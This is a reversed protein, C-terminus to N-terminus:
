GTKELNSNLISVIGYTGDVRVMQGPKIRKTAMPICAVAPIGYERAVIAGHSLVGGREMILASARLFLPTWGPDTSPCVLVYNKQDISAETPDTLIQAIGHAVGASIGTGKMENQVEVPIPDGIQNLTDSYIVDPLEIRLIKSREAQRASIKQMAGDRDFPEELEDIMLYFVGGGLDHRRDLELLAKRILEYGLMLYFKSKERFPMYRRTLDLNRRIQKQRTTSLRNLDEEAQLQNEEQMQIRYVPNTEPNMQFSAIIQKIYSPDEHWRPEALEFENTARHGFQALFKEITLNGQAVEWMKLHSIVTLNGDVATTLAHALEDVKAKDTFSKQLLLELKQYAYVAFISGKLADKAFDNMTKQHWEYLKDILQSDTLQLLNVKLEKRVYGEFLPFIQNNLTSDFGKILRQLNHEAALMKMISLLFLKVSVIRKLNPIPQPYMAKQPNKKLEEFNHEFPFGYCLSEVERSLNVYIRGCILDLLGEQDVRPSPFFGLDRFALGYGGRGSMFNKIISWTMPLPAPLVEALNYRSWVTGYPDSKQELAEIERRRLIEIQVTDTLTTVTRAQLIHFQNEAYAWEIDQPTGYFTEIDMGLNALQYVLDRRLSPTYRKDIPVEILGSRSVMKRKTTIKESIVQGNLKSVILHDPTVEGSVISEGLGWNSEIVIEDGGIPNVTFMVGSVEADVMVQVVVAMSLGAEDIQQNQRYAVARSSWLSAWCKKIKDLLQVFQSINLFTDQQGAFSAQALDEATASSRVAVNGTELKGYALLIADELLETLETKQIKDPSLQDLAGITQRYADTTVCFGPPVHFGAQTLKGLNLGKGGVLGLDEDCIDSFYKIYEM